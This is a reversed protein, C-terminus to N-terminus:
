KEAEALLNIKCAGAEVEQDGGGDEFGIHILGATTPRRNLLVAASRGDFEVLLLPKSMRDPDSVARGKPWSTLEGTDRGSDGEEGAGAGDGQDDNEGKKSASKAKSGEDEAEGASGSNGGHGAGAGPAALESLLAIVEEDRDPRRQYRATSRAM